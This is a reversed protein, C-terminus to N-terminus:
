QWPPMFLFHSMKSQVHYVTVANANNTNFKKWIQLASLYISCLWFPFSKECKATMCNFLKLEECIVTIASILFDVM